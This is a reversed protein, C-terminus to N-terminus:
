NNYINKLFIPGFSDVGVTYFARFSNMRLPTLPSSDPYQYSPGNFKGCISCKNLIKRVFSRGKCIWFTQRLETLTQKISIYKLRIHLDTVILEALRHGSHILIQTKVEFPLPSERLM